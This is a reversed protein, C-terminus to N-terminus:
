KIYKDLNINVQTAQVSDGGREMRKKIKYGLEVAKLRIAEDPVEIFDDTSEDANKGTVRASVVKNADLAADHKELLKKDPLYKEILEQWGKSQTLTKPNRATRPSYGVKRMIKATSKGSNAMREELAAKQKTTPM